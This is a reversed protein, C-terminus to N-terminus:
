GVRLGLDQSKPMTESHLRQGLATQESNHLLDTSQYNDPIRPKKEVCSNALFPDTTM